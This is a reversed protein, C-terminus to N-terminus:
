ADELSSREGYEHEGGTLHIAAEKDFLLNKANM